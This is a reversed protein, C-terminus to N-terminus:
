AAEAPLLSTIEALREEIALVDAMADQWETADNEVEWSANYQVTTRREMFDIFSMTYKEALTRDLARSQELKYLLAGEILGLIKIDLPADGLLPDQLLAYTQESLNITAM